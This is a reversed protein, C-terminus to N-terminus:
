RQNKSQWESAWNNWKPRAAQLSQAVTALRPRWLRRRLSRASRVINQARRRCRSAPGWCVKDSHMVLSQAPKIALCARNNIEANMLPAAELANSSDRSALSSCEASSEQARARPYAGNQFAAPGLRESSIPHSRPQPARADGGARKISRAAFHSRDFVFVILPLLLLFSKRPSANRLARAM